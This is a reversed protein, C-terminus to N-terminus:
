SDAKNGRYLVTLMTIDDFQPADEVFADIAARLQKPLRVAEEPRVQDLADLMRRTGFLEGDPCTAEAVGDTYVFLGDGPALELTYEPYKVGSMVALALGHKDRLLEFRGDARRLAPYEHGANACTLRGTSIELIGLWATAFMEESNNECLQRNVKELIQSPSLGGMQTSNKIMAKTIVMFLAAPIGKGSVDAIVLALHDSDVLFFDYFDGGVEKAPDMSAFIDFETREPYPPFICPLMSVQIRRALDLETSIREKEATVATLNKVYASLDTEMQRVSRYLVGIEDNSRLCREELAAPALSDDKQRLTFDRAAAALRIIPKVLTHRVAVLSLLMMLLAAALQIRVLRFLFSQQLLAVENMPLDVTVYGHTSGDEARIPVSVTLAKWGDADYLIPPVEQGALIDQRYNKYDKFQVDILENPILTGLGFQDSEPGASFICVQGEQTPYIVCTLDAENATQVAQVRGAIEQYAEDTQGSRYYHEVTDAGVLQSITQAVHTAQQIKQDELGACYTRYSFAVMGVGLFLTMLIVNLASKVGLSVKPQWHGARAATDQM